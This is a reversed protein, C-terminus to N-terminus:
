CSRLHDFVVTLIATARLFGFEPKIKSKAMAAIYM